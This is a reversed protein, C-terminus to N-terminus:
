ESLEYDEPLDGTAKLITIFADVDGSLARRILRAVRQEMRNNLAERSLHRLTHQRYPRRWKVRYRKM